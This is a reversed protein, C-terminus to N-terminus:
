RPNRRDAESMLMNECILAIDSVVMACSRFLAKLNEPVETIGAYGPNMTIFLGVSDVLAIKEKMFDFMLDRRKLADLITMVQTSVVSLAEISIRKFEDFCGWAGSQSLDMFIQAMSQYSMQDSCNFVM